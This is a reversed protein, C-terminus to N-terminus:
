PSLTWTDIRGIDAAAADQVRLKWTGNAPESSLNTTYTQDINDASGGSRNHLLYSSGDPAILTVLLDGIYTHVIHVEVTATASANGPCGSVTIPSEVTSLDPIPVDNGNTATCGAPSPSPSPSPSPTPTPTPTPSPTPTPGAGGLNITWTDIRGIDAAAADQVRLKWTGNAPGSSLNTTYTQDINDASGGARNHLLYSSGDPAILTVLLDGIYTHVIHVEVTATASANGACGSISIPSEVTSLDPIPVDNGNTATCGAPSPSPSPTPSPTPSPSATPTPSPSPTPSPTPTATPSPTPTPSPTATPTANPDVTFSRTKTSSATWALDRAYMSFTYSGAALGSYTAPSECREYAGTATGPGDLKCEFLGDKNSDFEFSATTAQTLGSPGSLIAAVPPDSDVTWFGPGVFASENGAADTAFVFAYSEFSPGFPYIKPSLCPGIEYSPIESFGLECRFTSHPETSHFWLQAGPNSSAGPPLPDFIVAPAATDVTFPRTASTPDTIGSRTARVSFTYHGDTLPGYAKPSACSTYTGTAAGPGDLKCEFTSGSLTSTFRYSPSNVNTPGSPGGSIQTQPTNPGPPNPDPGDGLFRALVFDGGSTTGVVVLKGDAQVVGDVSVDDAGPLGAAATQKGDDGFTADLTGDTNLRAVAFAGGAKGFAVARGNSDLALGYGLTDAYFSTEMRGDDSFPRPDDSFSSDLAGSSEYRALQLDRTFYGGFQTQEAGYGVVVIRGDAQIVVGEGSDYTSQSWGFDTTWSRELAGSPTYRAVAVNAAGGFSQTGAVVIAGDAAIAVDNSSHGGGIQKGDGSFSADLAGNADYRALALSGGSNGGVVIRGDAQIAVATGRDAAGFDTTQLGDGSFSTDLVGAATYRALAFDGGSGGAVVIKGDAQIAVGQGDDAAGLDTTVLGDGSFSADPTGDVGYRALAFNGDSSGAVVIKGDAQVAVATAADSGGVDTTQKGDGSFSVDLDGPAPM